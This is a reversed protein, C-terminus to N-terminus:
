IISARGIAWSIWIICHRRRRRLKVPFKPIRLIGAIGGFVKYLIEGEECYGLKKM